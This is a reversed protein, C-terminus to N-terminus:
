NRNGDRPLELVPKPQSINQRGTHSAIPLGHQTVSTHTNKECPVIITLRVRVVTTVYEIVHGTCNPKRKWINPVM